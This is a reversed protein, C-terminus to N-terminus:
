CTGCQSLSGISFRCDLEEQEMPLRKKRKFHMDEWAFIPISTTQKGCCFLTLMAASGKMYHIAINRLHIKTNGEKYSAKKGSRREVSIPSESKTYYYL